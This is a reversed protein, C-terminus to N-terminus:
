VQSKFSGRLARRPVAFIFQVHFGKSVSQSKDFHVPNGRGYSFAGGYSGVTLRHRPGQPPGLPPPTKNHALYGQVTKPATVGTATKMKSLTSLRSVNWDLQSAPDSSLKHLTKVALVRSRINVVTLQNSWDTVTFM